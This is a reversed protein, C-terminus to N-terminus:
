KRFFTCEWYGYSDRIYLTFLRWDYRNTKHTSDIFTLWRHSQLKKLQEPHAFVIGKTFRQSVRYSEVQYGQNTLYLITETIDTKLDHSGILHSEM